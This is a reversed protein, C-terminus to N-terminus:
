GLIVSKVSIMVFALKMSMKRVLNDLTDLKNLVSDMVTLQQKIITFKTKLRSDTVLCALRLMAPTPTVKSSRELCFKKMNMHIKLLIDRGGGEGFSLEDESWDTM